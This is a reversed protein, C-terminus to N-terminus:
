FGLIFFEMKSAKRQIVRYMNQFSYNIYFAQFM